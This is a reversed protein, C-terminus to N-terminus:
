LDLDDEKDNTPFDFDDLGLEESYIKMLIKTFKENQLQLNKYMEGVQFAIFKSGTVGTFFDVIEKAENDTFRKMFSDVIRETAEDIMRSVCEIVKDKVNKPMPMSSIPGISDQMEAFAKLKADKDVMSCFFKEVEERNM